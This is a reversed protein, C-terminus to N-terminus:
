ENNGQNNKKAEEELEEPTKSVTETYGESITVEYSVSGTLWGSSVNTRYNPTVPIFSIKQNEIITIDQAKVTLTCDVTMGEGGFVLGTAIIHKENITTPTDPITYKFTLNTSSTNNAQKTKANYTNPCAIVLESSVPKGGLNCATQWDSTVINIQGLPRQLTITPNETNVTVNDAVGTFVEISGLEEENSPATLQINTLDDFNYNEGNKITKDDKTESKKYAWFVLDYTYGKVLTPEITVKNNTVPVGLRAVKVDNNFIDCILTDVSVGNDARSQLTSPISATFTMKVEEGTPLSEEQSCGALMLAALAMTFITKKM